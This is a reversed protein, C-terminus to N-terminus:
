KKDKKNEEDLYLPSDLSKKVKPVIIIVDILILVVIYILLLSYICQMVIGLNIVFSHIVLLIITIFLFLSNILQLIFSKKSIYSKNLQKSKVFFFKFFKLDILKKGKKKELYDIGIFCVSSLLYIMFYIPILAILVM